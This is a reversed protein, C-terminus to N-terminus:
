TLYQVLLDLSQARTWKYHQGYVRILVSQGKAFQKSQVSNGHSIKQNLQRSEIQTATNPKLLDLRTRLQRGLFLKAPSNGTTCHPTNHYTFLVKAIRSKM